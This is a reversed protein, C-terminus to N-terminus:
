ATETSGTVSMSLTAKMWALGASVWCSPGPYRAKSPAKTFSAGPAVALRTLRSAWARARRNGAM